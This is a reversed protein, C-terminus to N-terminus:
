RTVNQITDRTRDYLKELIRVDSECRRRMTPEVTSWDAAARAWDNASVGM